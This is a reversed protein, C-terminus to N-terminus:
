VDVALPAAPIEWHLQVRALLHRRTLTAGRDRICVATMGTTDTHFLVCGVSATWRDCCCEAAERIAYLAESSAGSKNSCM